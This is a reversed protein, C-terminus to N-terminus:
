WCWVQCDSPMRQSQPWLDFTLTVRNDFAIGVSTPICTSM